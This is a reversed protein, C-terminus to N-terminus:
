KRLIREFFSKRRTKEQLYKVKMMAITDNREDILRFLGIVGGISLGLALGFGAQQWWERIGASLLGASVPTMVIIILKVADILKDIGNLELKYIELDIQPSNRGIM